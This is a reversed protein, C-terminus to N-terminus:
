TNTHTCRARCWMKQHDDSLRPATWAHLRCNWSGFSSIFHMTELETICM